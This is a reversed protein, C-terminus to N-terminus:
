GGFFVEPEDSRYATMGFFDGIQGDRRSPPICEDTVGLRLTNPDINKEVMEFIANTLMGMLKTLDDNPLPKGKKVEHDKNWNGNKYKKSM